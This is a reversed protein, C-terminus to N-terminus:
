TAGVNLGKSDFRGLYVVAIQTQEGARLSMLSHKREIGPIALTKKKTYSITTIKNSKNQKLKLLKIQFM